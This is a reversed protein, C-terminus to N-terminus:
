YGMEETVRGVEDALQDTRVLWIAHGVVVFGVVIVALATLWPRLYPLFKVSGSQARAGPDGLQRASTRPEPERGVVLVFLRHRHQVLEDHDRDPDYRGTFGLDLMCLYLAGIARDALSTRSLEEIASFIRDGSSRSNFFHLELPQDLWARRGNWSFALLREDAFAAAAYTARLGPDGGTTPLMRRVDRGFAEVAPVLRERAARASPPTTNQDAQAAGAVEASANVAETEGGDEAAAVDLNGQKLSAEVGRVEQLFRQFAWVVQREPGVLRDNYTAESGM